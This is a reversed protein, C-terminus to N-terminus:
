ARFQSVLTNLKEALSALDSVTRTTEHITAAMQETAGANGEAISALHDMAAVIGATAQSQSQSERGVALMQHDSDLIAAQILKLAQDAADVTTTGTQVSKASTQMLTAIEKTAHASREALKRVEEAVVAFGRGQDGAKAAEIAANLSLLNTQNAIETIVSLINSIQSANRSIDRMGDVSAALAIEGKGAAAQANEFGQIAEAVHQTNATFSNSIEQISGTTQAVSSKQAEASQAINDAAATMENMGAAIEMTGSAISAAIAVTQQVM